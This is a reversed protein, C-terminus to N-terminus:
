RDYCNTLLDLTASVPLFGAAKLLRHLILLQGISLAGTKILNWVTTESQPPRGRDVAGVDVDAELDLKVERADEHVALDRSELDRQDLDEPCMQPLLHMFTHDHIEALYSSWKM